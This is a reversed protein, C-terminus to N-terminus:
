ITIVVRDDVAKAGPIGMADCYANWVSSPQGAQFMFRELHRGVIPHSKMEELSIGDILVDREAIPLTVFAAVAPDRIIGKPDEGAEVADMDAMLQKRLMQIGRDSLGLNEKTRDAVTGQGVWAIFDQNIVHTSIWRGTDADKIPGHWTPITDQIYPESDTPVRTFVWSISLTNEDDIPVRWEFHDGLFFCNPLLCVRGITWM